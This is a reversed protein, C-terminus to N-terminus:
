DGKVEAVLAAAVVTISCSVVYDDEETTSPSGSFLPLLPGFDLRVNDAVVAAAVTYDATGHRDSHAQETLNRGSVSVVVVTSHITM